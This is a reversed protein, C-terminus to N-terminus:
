ISRRQRFHHMWCYRKTNNQLKGKITVTGVSNGSDEVLFVIGDTIDNLINDESHHALFFDVAGKPYYHPYIEKITECTIEKVKNLHNASAKIINM